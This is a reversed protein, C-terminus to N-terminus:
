ELQLKLKLLRIQLDQKAFLQGRQEARSKQMRPNVKRFGHMTKEYRKLTKVVHLSLFHLEEEDAREFAQWDEWDDTRPKFERLTPNIETKFVDAVGITQVM